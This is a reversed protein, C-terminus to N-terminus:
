NYDMNIEEPLQLLSGSILKFYSFVNMNCSKEQLSIFFHLENFLVFNKNLEM